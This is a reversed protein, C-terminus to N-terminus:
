KSEKLKRRLIDIDDMLDEIERREEDSLNKKKLVKNYADIADMLAGRARKEDGNSRYWEAKNLNQEIRSAESVSKTITAKVGRNGGETTLSTRGGLIIQFGASATLNETEKFRESGIQGQFWSFGAKGYISFNRKMDHTLRLGLSYDETSVLQEEAFNISFSVEGELDLTTRIDSWEAIRCRGEGGVAPGFNAACGRAHVKRPGIKAKVELSEALDWSGTLWVGTGILESLENKRDVERSISAVELGLTQEALAKPVVLVVGLLVAFFVMKTNM